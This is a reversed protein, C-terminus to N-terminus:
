VSARKITVKSLDIEGLGHEHARVIMVIDTGRLGLLTTCFSDIAVRDVGAVVTHPTKIEGPGFPGNTGIFETADVVCLTPAVALNLDAICQDLHAIDDPTGAKSDGTHFTRNVAPSNLGMLNKMTGTFRNGAHDKTIPMDIFVDHDFLAKMIRAEKLAVGKSIPVAKFDAESKPDVLVLSAGEAQIVGALGTAEWAAPKLWSLCDVQAAGAQKCERIVAALIEPKTYTGPHRSQSNALLAVRAGKPVYHSIGGVLSIAKAAARGYDAGTVVAIESRVPAALARSGLSAALSTGLTATM